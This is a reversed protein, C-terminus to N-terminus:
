EAVRLREQSATEGWCPVDTMKIACAEREGARDEVEEM